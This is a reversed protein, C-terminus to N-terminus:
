CLVPMSRFHQILTHTHTNTHTHTHTHAHTYIVSTQGRDFTQQEHMACCRMMTCVLMLVYPGLTCVSLRLPHFLSFTCACVGTRTSSVRVGQAATTVLTLSARQKEEIMSVYM